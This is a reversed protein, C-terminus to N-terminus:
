PALEWLEGRYTAVERTTATRPVFLTAYNDHSPERYGIGNFLAIHGTADSWNVSFAIIGKKTKFADDYPRTTDVQPKGFVALLYSRLTTVSFIIHHGDATSLRKEKPVLAPNIPAGSANLAVSIRSACANGNPGFGPAYLNKVANGGLHEYVDKM